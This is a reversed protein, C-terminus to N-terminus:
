LCPSCFLVFCLLYFCLLVHSICVIFSSKKYAELHSLIEGAVNGGVMLVAGDPEIKIACGQAEM